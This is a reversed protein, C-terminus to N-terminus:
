TKRLLKCHEGNCGAGDFVVEAFSKKCYLHLAVISAASRLLQKAVTTDKKAKSYDGYFLVIKTAFDLSNDLLPSSM